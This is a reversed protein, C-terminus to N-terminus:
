GCFQKEKNSILFNKPTNILDISGDSNYGVVIIEGQIIISKNCFNFM